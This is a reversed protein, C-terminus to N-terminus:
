RQCRVGTTWPVAREQKAKTVVNGGKQWDNVWGHEKRCHRRIGAITRVIFGCHNCRVGDSEPPAIFQLPAVTPPPFRFSRLEEQHRAIGPISGILAAIKGRESAQIHRHTTRLHSTVEGAICAFQCEKCIVFPYEPVHVFPEMAPIHDQDTPTTNYHAPIVGM